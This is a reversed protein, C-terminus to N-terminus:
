CLYLKEAIRTISALVAVAIENTYVEAQIKKESLMDKAGIVRTDFQLHEFFRIISDLDAHVYKNLIEHGFPAGFVFLDEFDKKKMIGERAAEEVLSGLLKKRRKKIESWVEEPSSAKIEALRERLGAELAIRCLAICGLPIGACFCMSAFTLYNFMAKDFFLSDIDPKEQRHVLLIESIRRTVLERIIYQDHLVSYQGRLMQDIWLIDQENPVFGYHFEVIKKIRAIDPVLIKTEKV